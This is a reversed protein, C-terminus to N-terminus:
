SREFENSYTFTVMEPDLTNETKRETVKLSAM